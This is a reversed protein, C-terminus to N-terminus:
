CLAFSCVNSSAPTRTPARADSSRLHPRLVVPCIATKQVFTRCAKNPQSLRVKNELPSIGWWVPMEGSTKARLIEIRSIDTQFIATPEQHSRTGINRCRERDDHARVQARGAAVGRSSPAPRREAPRRRRGPRHLAM